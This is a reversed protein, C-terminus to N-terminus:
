RNQSERFQAPAEGTWRRFARAFAREDSFGLAMAISLIKEGARLKEEALELLISDRLSRFGLGEEALLRALNRGSMALAEGVQEKSWDPHARILAVTQAALGQETMTHLHSDALTRLQERLTANAQILPADLLAPDFLLADEPQDFRVPCGLRQEYEAVAGLPQHRFQVRAPSFQEGTSWRSLQIMAAVVAEVRQARCTSFKPLYVLRAQAAGTELIFDGGDGVIPHYEVLMELSQRYDDCSMLLMGAIDLHGVQLQQGLALGILPDSAQEVLAQWLRDQDALDVRQGSQAQEPLSLSLREAAQYLAQSYSRTVSPMSKGNQRNDTGYTGAVM